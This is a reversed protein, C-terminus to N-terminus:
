REAVSRRPKSALEHNASRATACLALGTLDTAARQAGLRAKAFETAGSLRCELKVAQPWSNLTNALRPKCGRKDEAVAGIAAGSAPLETFASTM